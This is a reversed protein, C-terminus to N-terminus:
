LKVDYVRGSNSIPRISRSSSLAGHLRGERYLGHAVTSSHACSMAKSPMLLISVYILDERNTDDPSAPVVAVESEKRPQLFGAAMSDAGTAAIVCYAESFITDFIEVEHKLDEPSDHVICLADVWFYRLNLSRMISVADRLTTLLDAGVIGHQLSELNAQTRFFRPEDVGWTYSLAVYLLSERTTNDLEATDILHCSYEDSSNIELLRSPLPRSKPALIPTPQCDAHSQDCDKLRERIIAM